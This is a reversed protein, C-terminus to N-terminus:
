APTRRFPTVAASLRPLFGLGFPNAGDVAIVALYAFVRWVERRSSFDEALPASERYGEFFRPPVPAFYDVLSLDLEPHGYYPCADVLMTGAPTHLINNQQADGHLLTPTPDPGCLDPLHRLFREVAAALDPPLTGADVAARLNPRVRREAYFDPWRNTVVPRNDQALPGFRGDGDALGFTTGRVRHLRGLTRGAERWDPPGEEVAALLLLGDLYAVLGPTPAHRGLLALGAPESPHAGLKAFVSFGAGHFVGAPHSARGNLDTFRVATWPRGLHASTAREVAARARLLPHTAM